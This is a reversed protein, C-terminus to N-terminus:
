ILTLEIIKKELKAIYEDKENIITKLREIEDDQNIAQEFINLQNDNEIGKDVHEWQLPEGTVPHKGGHKYEGRLNKSITSPYTGGWKAGASISPFVEGTNICRIPKSGTISDGIVKWQLLEGTVPDKGSHKREGRLHKYLQNVDINAWESAEIASNFVKGNNLCRIIM